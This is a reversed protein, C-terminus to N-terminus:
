YPSLRRAMACKAETELRVVSTSPLTPRSSASVIGGVMRITVADTHLRGTAEKKEVLTCVAKSNAKPIYNLNIYANNPSKIYEIESIANGAVKLTNVESVIGYEEYEGNSNLAYFKLATKDYVYPDNGTYSALNDVPTAEFPETFGDTPPTYGDDPTYDVTIQTLRFTGTLTFTVSNTTGEPTWTGNAFTGTSATANSKQGAPNTTFSIGDLTGEGAAKVTIQYTADLVIVNSVGLKDVTSADQKAITATVHYPSTKWAYPIAINTNDSPLSAKLDSVKFAVQDAFLQGLGLVLSALLLFHKKM